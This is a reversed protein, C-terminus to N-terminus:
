GAAVKPGGATPVSGDGLGSGHPKNVLSDGAQRFKDFIRQGMTVPFRRPTMALTDTMPM